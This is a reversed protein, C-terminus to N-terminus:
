LRVGRPINSFVIETEVINDSLSVEDHPTRVRKNATIVYMEESLGERAWKRIFM